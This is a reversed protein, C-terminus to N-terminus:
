VEMKTNVGNPLGTGNCLEKTVPRVPNACAIIGDALPRVPNM